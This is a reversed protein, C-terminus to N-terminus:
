SVLVTFFTLSIRISEGDRFLQLEESLWCFRRLLKHRMGLTANSEVRSVERRILPRDDFGPEYLRTKINTKGRRRKCGSHIKWKPCDDNCLQSISVSISFALKKGPRIESIHRSAGPPEAKVFVTM